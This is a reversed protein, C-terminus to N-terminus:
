RLKITPSMMTRNLGGERERMYGGLIIFNRNGYTPTNCYQCFAMPLGILEISQSM